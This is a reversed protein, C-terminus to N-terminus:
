MDSAAAGLLSRMQAIEKTQGAIITRALTKAEGSAGRTLETRGMAIAGQHHKTMMQLWMRDFGAGSAKGLATMEEPSMMGDGMSGGMKSMDHGAMTAPVPKGWSKLWGSMTAIEPDQAAKIQRALGKVKASNGQKLAMDAMQVAQAHHPVMGTAFAVDAANHATGTTTGSNPPASSSTMASMDHSSSSTGTSGTSGSGCGSVVLVSALAATAACLPVTRNM